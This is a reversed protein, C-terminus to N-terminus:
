NRIPDHEPLKFKDDPYIADLKILYCRNMFFKIADKAM